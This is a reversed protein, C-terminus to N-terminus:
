KEIGVGTDKVHVVLMNNEYNYSSKITISGKFTFKLANKVINIM